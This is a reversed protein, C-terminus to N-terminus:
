KTREVIIDIISDNYNDISKSIFYLINFDVKRNSEPNNNRRNFIEFYEQIIEAWETVSRLVHKFSQESLVEAVRLMDSYKLFPHKRDLYYEYYDFYYKITDSIYPEYDSEIKEFISTKISKTTEPTTNSTIESTTSAISDSCNSSIAGVQQLSYCWSHINSIIVDINVTYYTKRPLSKNITTILGLRQLNKKAKKVEWDALGTETSIEKNTKYFEKYERTSGWYVLQSLLVGSILNGTIKTYIRHYAIPRENLATFLEKMKDM